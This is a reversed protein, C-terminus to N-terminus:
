SYLCYRKAHQNVKEIGCIEKCNDPVDFGKCAARLIWLLEDTKKSHLSKVKKELYRIAKDYDVPKKSIKIKISM